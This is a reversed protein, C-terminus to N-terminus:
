YLRIATNCCISRIDWPDGDLFTLCFLSTEMVVRALNRYIKLVTRAGRGEDFENVEPNQDDEYDGEEDTEYANPGIKASPPMAGNAAM